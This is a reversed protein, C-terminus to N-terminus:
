ATKPPFLAENVKSGVSWGAIAGIVGLIQAHSDRGAVSLSLAMGAIGGVFAPMSLTPKLDALAGTNGSPSVTITPNM